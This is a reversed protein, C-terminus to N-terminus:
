RALLEEYDSARVADTSLHGDAVPVDTRVGELEFVVAQASGFSTATLVVQAVALTEEGGGVAAFHRSLDIHVTSGDWELGLLETGAPISTRLRVRDEPRTVGLLLSRLIDELEPPGGIDRTVHVLQEDRVLYISVAVVDEAESEVVPALDDVQVDLAEPATQTPVGCAAGVLLLVLLLSMKKTVM